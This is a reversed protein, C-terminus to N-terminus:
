NAKYQGKRIRARLKAPVLGVVMPKFSKIYYKVNLNMNKCGKLRAYVSNIRYIYKRRNLANKDNRM